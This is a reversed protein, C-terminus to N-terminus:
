ACGGHDSSDVPDKFLCFFFILFFNKRMKREEKKNKKEIKEMKTPETETPRVSLREVGMEEVQAAKM